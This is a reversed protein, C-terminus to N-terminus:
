PAPAMPRVVAATAAVPMFVLATTLHRRLMTTARLLMPAGQSRALAMIWMPRRVTIAREPIPVASNWRSRKRLGLIAGQLLSSLLTVWWWLTPVQEMLVACVMTQRTRLRSRTLARPRKAPPPILARQLMKAQVSALLLGLTQPM